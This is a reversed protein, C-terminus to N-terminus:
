NNTKKEIILQVIEISSNIIDIISKTHIINMYMQNYYLWM